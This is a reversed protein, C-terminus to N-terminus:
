SELDKIQARLKRAQCGYIEQRAIDRCAIANAVQAECFSLKDRLDEIETATSM